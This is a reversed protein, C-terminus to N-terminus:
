GLAARVAGAPKDTTHVNAYFNAPTALIETILAAAVTTCGRSVGNADPSPAMPIIVPGQSTRAGRHIHQAVAPLIINSVRVLWCMQGADSRFRVSATGAGDPDGLNCTGATNCENAGNLQVAITRGLSDESTGTLQGRVAGGPFDSTHVNVYYNGANALIQNVIARSAAVCGSSAGSANPPRLPVVIAGATGTAGVHIHSAAAPLTITQVQMSFCVQGQNRRARVTATGTGAPEGAPAEAEGTLAINFATGGSTATLRTRPCAGSPAPIIDAAHRLHARQQAATVRVKVYPRSAPSSRFHCIARKAVAEVSSPESKATALPVLAAVAVAVVTVPFLLRKV